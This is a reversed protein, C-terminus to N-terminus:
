DLCGSGVASSRGMWWAQIMMMLLWSQGTFSLNRPRVAFNRIVQERQRLQFHSVAEGDVARVNLAAKIACLCRFVALVSSLSCRRPRAGVLALLSAYRLLLEKSWEEGGWFFFGRM